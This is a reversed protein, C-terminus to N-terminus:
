SIERMADYLEQTRGGEEYRKLLPDIVTRLTDTGFLPEFMVFAEKLKDTRVKVAGWQKDTVM